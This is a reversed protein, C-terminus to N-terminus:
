LAYRIRGKIKQLEWIVMKQTFTMLDKVWFYNVIKLLQVKFKEGVHEFKLRRRM